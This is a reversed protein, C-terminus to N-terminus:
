LICTNLTFLWTNPSQKSRLCIVWRVITLIFVVAAKTNSSPQLGGYQENEITYNSHFKDPSSLIQVQPFNYVIWDDKLPFVRIQYYATIQM